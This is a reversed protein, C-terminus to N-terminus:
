QWNVKIHRMHLPKKKKKLLIFPLIINHSNLFYFCFIFSYNTERYNNLLPGKYVPMLSLQVHLIHACYTFYIPDSGMPSPFLTICAFFTWLLYIPSLCTRITFIDLSYLNVTVVLSCDVYARVKDEVLMCFVLTDFSHTKSSYLQTLYMFNM